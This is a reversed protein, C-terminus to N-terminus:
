SDIGHNVIIFVNSCSIGRTPKRSIDRKEEITTEQTISRTQVTRSVTGPLHQELAPLTGDGPAIVTLGWSEWFAESAACLVVATIDALIVM